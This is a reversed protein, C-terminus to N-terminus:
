NRIINREILSNRLLTQAQIFLEKNSSTNLWRSGGSTHPFFIVLRKGWIESKGVHKDLTTKSLDQNSLRLYAKLPFLGLTVIIQPEVLDIQQELFPQCNRVMAPTPTRDECSRSPLDKKRYKRGPYCKVVASSYVFSDFNDIGIERFIERIKHGAQGQYPKRTEYETLGPAQGMLLIPKKCIGSVLPRPEVFEITKCPNVHFGALISKCKQCAKLNEDFQKYAGINMIM